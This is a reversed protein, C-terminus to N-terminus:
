QSACTALTSLDSKSGIATVAALADDFNKVRFVQLGAPIHDNVEGCNEAPALFYKAGARQAGYLKQRIGGIPGVTGDTAITGTGAINEGGTLQGKTLQDYIGLAFIMGGSPGGIDSLQLNVKVPFDFKFGVLVGLLYEGSANKTPAISFTKKEGSRSVTVQLPHVGDYAKVFKRLENFDKPHVGNIAEIYDGAIIKESSPSNKNVQSVYIHIPIQYGLKHLAVYIADQQSQEMMATSEAESQKTTTGVPYIEDLPTVTQSQDLWASFIEPWTPTQERNGVISVTLLDLAGSTPYSETDSVSIVPKGGSSGLVNVAPGPREIVYPVPLFTLAIVGLVLALSLLVLGIPRRPSQNSTM